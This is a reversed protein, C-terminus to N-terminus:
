RTQTATAIIAGLVLTVVVWVVREVARGTSGRRLSEREVVDLRESHRSLRRETDAVSALLTALREEIRAVTVLSEALSDVKKEIRELRAFVGRNTGGNATM